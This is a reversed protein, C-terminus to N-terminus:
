SRPTLPKRGRVVFLALRAREREGNTQTPKAASDPVIPQYHDELPLALVDEFGAREFAGRVDERDLGLFRDGHTEHM